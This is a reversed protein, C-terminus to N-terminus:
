KRKEYDSKLIGYIVIDEYQGWKKIHQRLHGERAMGIKQMVRGSAPNRLFYHAHIRYLSLSDFGFKL